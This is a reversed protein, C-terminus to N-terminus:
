EFPWNISVIIQLSTFCTLHPLSFLPLFNSNVFLFEVCCESTLIRTSSGPVQVFSCYWFQFLYKNSHFLLLLLNVANDTVIFLCTRQVNRFALMFPLPTLMRVITLSEATFLQFASSFVMVTLKHSLKVPVIHVLSYTHTEIADISM